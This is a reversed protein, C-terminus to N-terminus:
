RRTLAIEAHDMAMFEDILGFYAAAQPVEHAGKTAAGAAAASEWRWVDMWTREDLRALNAELLGPFRTSISDVARPWAQRLSEAKSPDVRFRALEFAEM